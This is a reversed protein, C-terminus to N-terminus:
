AKPFESYFISYRDGFVEKNISECLEPCIISFIILFRHAEDRSVNHPAIFSRFFTICTKTLKVLEAEALLKNCNKVFETFYVNDFAQNLFPEDFAKKIEGLIGKYEDLEDLTGKLDDCLSSNSLLYLRYVDSQYRQLIENVFSVGLRQQEGLSDIDMALDDIIVLRSYPNYEKGYKSFYMNFIVNFLIEDSANDHRIICTTEKFEDLFSNSNYIEEGGTMSDYIRAYISTLGLVFGNNFTMKSISINTDLKEENTATPKYRNNFYVPYYNTDLVSVEEAYDVGAPILIGLDNFSTIILDNDRPKLYVQAMGESSFAEVISERAEEESLGDLFDSNILIRDDDLCINPDLGLSSAFMYDLTDITPIGVHLAEDYKYSAFVYIDKFTLPNKLIVGTFCDMDENEEIQYNSVSIYEDPTTYMLVDILRPNLAIFSIGAIYEPNDLEIPLSFELNKLNLSLGKKCDLYKFIDNKLNDNIKLKNINKILEPFKLLNITFVDMSKVFADEGDLFVYKENELKVMSKPFVQHSTFDTFVEKKKLEIYGNDYMEKFITQVFKITDNDSLALEKESDFGVNMDCLEMKHSKRLSEIGEGRLRSYSYTIDNLNNCVLPYMVNFGMMRYAKNLVDSVIIPKLNKNNFGNNVVQYPSTYLYRKPKFRDREIKFLRKNNWDNYLESMCEEGGKSLNYM